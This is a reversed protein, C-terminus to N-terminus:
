PRAAALAEDLPLLARMAHGSPLAVGDEVAQAFRVAPDSELRRRLRLIRPYDTPDLAGHFTAWRAVGVFVADALSPREGLLFPADDLMAELRAHRDVAAERGFTRLLARSSETMGAAEMAIWYPTFASTFGTNLYAM